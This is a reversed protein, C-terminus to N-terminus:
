DHRFKAVANTSNTGLNTAADIMKATPATMAVSARATTCRSSVDNCKSGAVLENVSHLDILDSGSKLKRVEKHSTLGAGDEIYYLLQGQWTGRSELKSAGQPFAGALDAITDAAFALELAASPSSAILSELLPQRQALLEAGQTRLQAAQGQPAAHLLGRLRLTEANLQRLRAEESNGQAFLAASLALPTPTPPVKSRTNTSPLRIWTKPWLKMPM